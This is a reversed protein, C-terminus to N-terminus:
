MIYLLYLPTLIQNANPNPNHNLNRNPDPAYSAAFSQPPPPPLADAQLPVNRYFLAGLFWTPFNQFKSLQSELVHLVTSRIQKNDYIM